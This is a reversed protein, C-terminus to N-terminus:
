EFPTAQRPPFGSFSARTCRGATVSVEGLDEMRQEYRLDRRRIHASVGLRDEVVILDPTVRVIPHPGYRACGVPDCMQMTQLDVIDHSRWRWSRVNAPYTGRFMHPNSDSIVRGHLDCYLDFHLADTASTGTAPSSAARPVPTAATAAAIPGAKSRNGSDGAGSAESGCASLALALGACALLNLSARTRVMINRGEADVRAKTSMGAALFDQAIRMSCMPFM